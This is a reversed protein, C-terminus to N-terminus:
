PDVGPAVPVLAVLSDIVCVEPVCDPACHVGSM